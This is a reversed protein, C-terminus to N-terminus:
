SASFSFLSLSLIIACYNFGACCFFQMLLSLEAFALYALHDIDVDDENDSQNSQNEQEVDFTPDCQDPKMNAEDYQDVRHALQFRILTSSQELGVDSLVQRCMAEFEPTESPTPPRVHAQPLRPPPPDNANSVEVYLFAREENGDLSIEQVRFSFQAAAARVSAIVVSNPGIPCGFRLQCLHSYFELDEDNDNYQDVIDGTM